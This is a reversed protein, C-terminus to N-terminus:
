PIWNRCFLEKLRKWKIIKLFAERMNDMSLAYIIPNVSSNVHGLWTVASLVKDDIICSKCIATVFNCVFFPLWFALFIGLVIALTRAVRYENRPNCDKKVSHNTTVKHSQECTVSRKDLTQWNEILNTEGNVPNPGGIQLSVKGVFQNESHAVSPKISTYKCKLNGKSDAQSETLTNKTFQGGRHARLYAGSVKRISLTTALSYENSQARIVLFIKFYVVMMIIVPAYFSIISSLVLYITDATFICEGPVVEDVLYWWYISPFSIAASLVWVVSICILGRSKSMLRPYAIPNTVAWYRDLSIICLNLISATSALVDLSHWFHCMAQSYPWYRYVQYAINLPMVGVGIILDAIALSLIMHNTVIRLEKFCSVALVVLANGAVTVLPILILILYVYDHTGSKETWIKTILSLNSTTHYSQVTEDM